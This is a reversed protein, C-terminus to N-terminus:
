AGAFDAARQSLLPHLGPVGNQKAHAIGAALLHFGPQQAHAGIGASIAEGFRDTEAVDNDKGNGTRCHVICDAGIGLLQITLDDDVRGVLRPLRGHVAGFCESGSHRCRM